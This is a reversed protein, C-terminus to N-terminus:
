LSSKVSQAFSALWSLPQSQREAALVDENLPKVAAIHPYKPWVWVYSGFAPSKMHLQTTAIRLIRAGSRFTTAQVQLTANQVNLDSQQAQLDAINYQIVSVQSAQTLYLLCAIALLAMALIIQVLPSTGLSRYLRLPSIGATVDTWRQNLPRRNRVAPRATRPAVAYREGIM